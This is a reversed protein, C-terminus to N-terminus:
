KNRGLDLDRTVGYIRQEDESLGQLLRAMDPDEAQEGEILGAFRETTRNVKEQMSRIMKLEALMDVLPPDQPQGQPQAQEEPQAEPQDEPQGHAIVPAAILALAVLMSLLRM